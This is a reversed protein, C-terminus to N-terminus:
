TLFVPEYVLRRCCCIDLFQPGLLYLDAVFSGNVYAGNLFSKELSPITIHSWGGLYRVGKTVVIHNLPSNLNSRSILTKIRHPKFITILFSSYGLCSAVRFLAVVFVYKPLQLYRCHSIGPADVCGLRYGPGSLGFCSGDKRYVPM